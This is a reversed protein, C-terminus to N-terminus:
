ITVLHIIFHVGTEISQWTLWQMRLVFDRM